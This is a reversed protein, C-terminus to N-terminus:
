LLIGYMAPANLWAMVSKWLPFGVEVDPLKRVTDLILHYADRIGLWTYCMRCVILWELSM